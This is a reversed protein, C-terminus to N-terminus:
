PPFSCISLTLTKRKDGISACCCCQSYNTTANKKRTRKKILTERHVGNQTFLCMLLLTVRPVATKEAEGRKHNTRTRRNRKKKEQRSPLSLLSFLMHFKHCKRM